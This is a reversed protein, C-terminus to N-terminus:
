TSEEADPATLSHRRRIRRRSPSAPPPEPRRDRRQPKSDVKAHRATQILDELFSDFPKLLSLRLAPTTLDKPHDAPRNREPSSQLRNVNRAPSTSPGDQPLPPDSDYVLVNGASRQTSTGPRVDGAPDSFPNPYFFPDHENCAEDRKSPRYIM